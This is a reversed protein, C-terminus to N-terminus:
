CEHITKAGRKVKTKLYRRLVSFKGLSAKLKSYEIKLKEATLSM